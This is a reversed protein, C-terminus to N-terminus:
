IMVNMCSPTRIDTIVLLLKIQCLAVLISTINEPIDFLTSVCDSPILIHQSYGRCLSFPHELIVSFQM